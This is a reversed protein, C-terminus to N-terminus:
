DRLCLVPARPRKSLHGEQCFFKSPIELLPQLAASLKGNNCVVYGEFDQGDCGLGVHWEGSFGGLSSGCLAAVARRKGSSVIEAESKHIQARKQHRSLCLRATAGGVALWLPYESKPDDTQSGGHRLM